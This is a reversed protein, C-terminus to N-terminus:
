KNKRTKAKNQKIINQKVINKKTKRKRKKDVEVLAFLKDMLDDPVTNHGMFQEYTKSNTNINIDKKPVKTNIYFLGAPVALNEFPSSVDGGIHNNQNLTTMIPVNQKFFSSEFKYGGGIIEGEKNKMLVFDGGNFLEHNTIESINDTM